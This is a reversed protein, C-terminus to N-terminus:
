GSIDRAVRPPRPALGCTSLCLSILFLRFVPCLNRTEEALRRGVRHADGLTM